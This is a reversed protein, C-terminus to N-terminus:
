SLREGASGDRALGVALRECAEAAGRWREWGIRLGRTSVVGARCPPLAPRAALSEGTHALSRTGILVWRSAIFADAKCFREVGAEAVLRESKTGSIADREARECGM